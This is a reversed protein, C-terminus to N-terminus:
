KSTAEPNYLVEQGEPLLEMGQMMLQQSGGFLKHLLYIDANHKIPILETLIVIRFGPLYQGQKFAMVLYIGIPMNEFQYYGDENTTTSKLAFHIGDKLKGGGIYVSANPIIKPGSGDLPFGFVTGSVSVIGPQPENIVKQQPNQAALTTFGSLTIIAIILSAFFLTLKSNKM